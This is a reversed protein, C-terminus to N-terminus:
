EFIGRNEVDAILRRERQHLRVRRDISDPDWNELVRARLSREIAQARDTGALNRLEGPDDDLNYLEDPETHYYVYKWPGQRIMRIPVAAAHGCYESIVARETDETGLMHRLIHRGDAEEFFVDAAADPLALRAFTVGMDMLSVPTNNRKGTAVHGPWSVIMPVRVSDEFFCCKWWLGHEGAMDGHDSVYAFLPPAGALGPSADTADMVAGLLEDFWTVLAYFAARARRTENPDIHNLDFYSRLRKHFPHQTILEEETVQPMDVNDPYYHDFYKPARLPFHPANFSICLFIPGREKRPPLDALYTQAAALVDQDNAVHDSTGAGANLLRDRAKPRPSDPDDWDTSDIWTGCVRSDDVLRTSFGHHQDSGIFHMKGILVTEYGARRMVHAFTPVDSRLPAGNDWTETRTPYRGTMFAMRSPVCIPSACYAADFTLGRKALREMNPTCVVRHGYVSSFRPAHEDSMVLVIDPQEASDANVSL